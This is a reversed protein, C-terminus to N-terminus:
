PSEGAAAFTPAEYKPRSVVRAKVVRLWCTWGHRRRISDPRSLMRRCRKCVVIDGFLMMQGRGGRM